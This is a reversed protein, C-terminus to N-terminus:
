FKERNIKPRNIFAPFPRLTAVPAIICRPPSDHTSRRRPDHVLIEVAHRRRFNEARCKESFDCFRGHPADAGVHNTTADQENSERM